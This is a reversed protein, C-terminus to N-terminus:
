LSKIFYFCMIESTAPCYVICWYDSITILPIGGKCQLVSKSVPNKFCSRCVLIWYTKFVRRLLSLYLVAKCFSSSLTLLLSRYCIKTIASGKTLFFSKAWLWCCIEGLLFSSLDGLFWYWVGRGAVSLLNECYEISFVPLLPLLQSTVSGELMQEM